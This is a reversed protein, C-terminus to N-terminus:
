LTEGQERNAPLPNGDLDFAVPEEEDEYEGALADILADLKEEIRDLQEKMDGGLLFGGSPPKSM